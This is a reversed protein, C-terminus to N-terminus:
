KQTPVSSGETEAPEEWWLRMFEPFHIFVVFTNWRSGGIDLYRRASIFFIIGVTFVIFLLNIEYYYIGNENPLFYFLSMQILIIFVVVKFKIRFKKRKMPSNAALIPIFYSLIIAIVFFYHITNDTM